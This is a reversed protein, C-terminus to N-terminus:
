TIRQWIEKELNWDGQTIVNIHALALRRVMASRIKNTELQAKILELVRKFASTAKEKEQTAKYVMGLIYFSDINSNDIAIAKELDIVAFEYEKRAYYASGRCTFAFADLPQAMSAPDYPVSKVKFIEKKIFLKRM